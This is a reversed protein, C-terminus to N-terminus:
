SSPRRVRRATRAWRGARRAAASASRAARTAPACGGRGPARRCDTPWGSAAGPSGAARRRVVRAVRDHGRGEPEGLLVGRAAHAALDRPQALQLRLHERLDVRHEGALAADLVAAPHRDHGLARLDLGARLDGVAHPRQPDVAPGDVLHPQRPVPAVAPRVRTVGRVVQASQGAIRVDRDLLGLRERAVHAGAPAAPGRRLAQLADLRRVAATAGSWSSGSASAGCSARSTLAVTAAGVSSAMWWTAPSRRIPKKVSVVTHMPQLAQSTAQLCHFSRGASPEWNM